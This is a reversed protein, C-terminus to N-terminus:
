RWVDAHNDARPIADCISGARAFLALAKEPDGARKCAMGAVWMAAWNRPNMEIVRELLAVGKRLRRRLFFGVRARRNARHLPLYPYVLAVGAKYLRDHESDHPGIQLDLDSM